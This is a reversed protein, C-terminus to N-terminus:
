NIRKEIYASSRLDKLYHNQLRNLRETGLKNAIDERVEENVAVASDEKNDSNTSDIPVEVIEVIDDVNRKCVMMVAIGDSHKIPPTLEGIPLDKVVAVVQPPLDHLKVDNIDGTGASVFDKSKEAMAFCSKVESKLQSARAIKAAIVSDPEGETIPILIQKLSLTIDKGVVRRETKTAPPPASGLDAERKDIMLMIKYGDATKLPPTVQGPQMKGVAFKYKKPLQEETLWGLDGGRNSGAGSSFQRALMSFPVGEKLKGMIAMVLNDINGDGNDHLVIEALRYRTQKEQRLKEKFSSDIERESINIQPRLKRGVVYSWAIQAKVKDELTRPNIGSNRMQAVFSDYDFGNKAAIDAVGQRIQASTITIGLKKAEQMQLTENILEDLSRKEVENKIDLTIKVPVSTLNLITRNRLDSFTVVDDNVVAAIGERQLAFASSASSVFLLIFVAIFCIVFKRM